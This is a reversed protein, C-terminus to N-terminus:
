HLAAQRGLVETVVRHVADKKGGEYRPVADLRNDAQTRIRSNGVKDNELMAVVSVAMHAEYNATMRLHIAQWLKPENSALFLAVPDRNEPYFVMDPIVDALDESVPEDEVFRTKGNLEERLAQRVDDRFTSEVRERNLM